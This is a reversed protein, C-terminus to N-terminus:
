EALRRYLPDYLPLKEDAFRQLDDHSICGVQVSPVGQAISAVAERVLEWYTAPIDVFEPTKYTM